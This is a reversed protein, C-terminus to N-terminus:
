EIIKKIKIQKQQQLTKSKRIAHHTGLFNAYTLGNINNTKILIYVKPCLHM